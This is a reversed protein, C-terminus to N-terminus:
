DSLDARAHWRRLLLANAVVSVSSLAMAAGALMPNLLGLAALPVGIANYIFAWFLNQKIKRYTRRSIDIADAVLAPNGRMLTIGAAQMAVDTGTGMAIGVDAAALAPADNVGDGIMAVRGYRQRLQNIEHAKDAPLVQARVEDLGLAEAVRQASGANDGTLLLTKIGLHHLRSVARKAQPKLQDTFGLLALVQANTTSDILWSVSYGQEILQNSRQQLPSLDAGLTQVWDASGLHLQRQEVTASMGRGPVASVQKAHPYITNEQQAKAIVAKGLPHESGAQISAALALADNQTIADTTEFVMLQPKGETLTGTKDFALAKIGHAIELAEADKILIGYRAATGTGVMIATPTALGLACPCAIVLVAVANLIGREWDGTLLGWSLLTLIAIVIIVPVFVQSVQDVLRQIPAKKAQASEVLRIIHALTTESGVATTEIILLGDGNIAGGTVLDGVQKEVPLSEGTILSEDVQSRGEQILGDVTIREGAKVVVLDGRQVEDIPVVVDHEGRRICAYEPRLAALARIASSTQQKARNELWKGLLVLTIIVASAEFYLHPMGSTTVFLSYISLGYAASTGIAVLLDMNGAGALLAKWGARYFRAGLWFQIPTAFLLQLWAPLMWNVGFLEAIMPIILPLSLLAASAVPWFPPSNPQTTAQTLEPKLRAGYGATQIVEILQATKLHQGQVVVTETAFNVQAQEVGTHALLAKEIRAACSGCSMGDILLTISDTSAITPIVPQYGAQEVAQYLTASALEAHSRVWVTETALNVEVNLVGNVVRLAKEIRGACSGCSMGSVAFHHDVPEATIHTTANDSLPSSM